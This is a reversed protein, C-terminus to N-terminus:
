PTTFQGYGVNTKAGVGLQLLIQRFLAIKKEKSIVGDTLEFQFRFAVEPGVKLFQLPTPDTFADLSRNERNIHPTIFDNVLFHEPEIRQGRSDELIVPMADYFIDKGKLGEDTKVRSGFIEFEIAAVNSSSLGEDFTAEIKEWENRLNQPIANANKRADNWIDLIIEAGNEGSFLSRIVGKISSGPIVPLGLTHDFFFGLKLENMAGSEHHYGSGILLGPYITVLDFFPVGEMPLPAYDAILPDTLTKIKAAFIHTMTKKDSESKREIMESLRSWDVAQGNENHFNRFYKYYFLYGLNPADAM